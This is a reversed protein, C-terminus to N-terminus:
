EFSGVTRGTGLSQISFRNGSMQGAGGRDKKRFGPDADSFGGATRIQSSSDATRDGFRKVGSPGHQV